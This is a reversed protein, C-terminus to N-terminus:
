EPEATPHSEEMAKRLRQFERALGPMLAELKKQDGAEGAKEMGAAAQRLAEGAVTAAAGKIEHGQAGALKTEGRAVLDRLAEMQKPMDYLFSDQIKRLLNEDDMMRALLAARSFVAVEPSEATAVAPAEPYARSASPRAAGCPPAEPLWRALAAALAQPDVPKSIYDNMGAQLCLERDQPLARAPMAIIPVGHAVAASLGLPSPPLPQTREWERIRRTAELGDMVPMQVDILVLDYPIVALAQFAEQGNAVADARLGLKHLIGVAVQQNTINDEALLIRAGGHISACPPPRAESGKMPRACTDGALATALCDFLDSQRVPKWLCAAFGIEQLERHGSYQGLSTMMILAIQNLRADARIARGLAMGDMGPMQLDLIALRFPEGRGWAQHLSSLASPGDSAEAFLMGRAALQVRLIERNTANDDVVLVRAGLLNAPAPQERRAEPLVPLRITFWFESGKGEQSNVGVRGGMMEALQKSIALGLGTGGYHRSVSADVQTFKEFLQDLKDAPIGIGTDRVSFRLCAEGELQSEVVVRIEVEGKSTFKIANGTLNTLVQRLRGPDGRLRVPAEPGCACLLELGKEAAKVAMVGAFGDVLSRLDFDLLELELKGAEIKSLDLIDNILQLLTQGSARVTDAYRRQNETLETDLLLGTMGIVGNMLTRIEHSMNALFESKAASAMEARVAMSNARATAAELQRNTERLDAEAQKQVTIDWNTGIMRLPRGAADRQVTARARINRVSADPWLARFETNFEVEGVLARQIEDHGRQRDDPHVGAQWAEYAGGFQAAQIGYLRYMQEDWVLRNNVVDYDWIGVGGASTAMALRDAARALAAESQKRTTIDLFSVVAGVLVGDRCQTHSWYEAQFSSGDARWFVEDDVHANQGARIAQIMRCAEVPFPTGDPRKAHIQWHMNKGLLEEPRAYGLLRLCTNNCFTCNGELDVGYIAEAASNLLLRGQEESERLREEARKRETVDTVIWIAGEEPNELSVAHGALHCWFHAGDKRKMELESACVGGLALQEGYARGIREYDEARAYFSATEVGLSQEAEYGLLIGLAPNAWVVKRNKAFCIGVVTTELITRQQRSIEELATQAQKRSTIDHVISHLARRGGFLIQSGFVEVQAVSGDAKRHEFEFRRGSSPLVSAMAQLVSDRPLTNIDTISLQLLREREYGYFAAAALNAEIIRGDAPDVLLMVSSNDLFQRRYTEESERLKGAREEVRRELEGCARRLAAESGERLAMERRMKRSYTIAIGAALLVGLAQSILLGRRMRKAHRLSESAATNMQLGQFTVFEEWAAHYKMLLPLTQSVMRERASETQREKLLLDLAQLYSSVYLERAVKIVALLEKEQPSTAVTELRGLLKGIKEANAARQALIAEIDVPERLLFVTTTLRSNLSSYGLAQQAWQVQPWEHNFIAETRAGAHDIEMVGLWGMGLILLVLSGFAIAVRTSISRHNM